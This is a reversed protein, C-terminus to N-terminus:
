AAVLALPLLLLLVLGGTPLLSAIHKPIKMTRLRRVVLMLPRLWGGAISSNGSVQLAPEPGSWAGTGRHQQGLNSSNM